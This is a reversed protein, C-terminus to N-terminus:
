YFTERGVTEDLKDMEKTEEERERQDRQRVIRSVWGTEMKFRALINSDNDVDSVALVSENIEPIDEEAEGDAELYEDEILATGGVETMETMIMSEDDSWPLGSLGNMAIEESLNGASNNALYAPKQSVDRERVSVINQALFRADAISLSSKLMASYVAEESIKKTNKYLAAGTNKDFVMAEQIGNPTLFVVGICKGGVKTNVSHIRNETQGNLKSFFERNDIIDKVLGDDNQRTNKNKKASSLSFNEAAEKEQRVADKKAYKSQRQMSDDSEDMALRISIGGSHESDSRNIDRVKPSPANKLTEEMEINITSAIKDLREFERRQREVRSVWGTERRLEALIEASSMERASKKPVTRFEGKENEAAASADYTPNMALYPTQEQTLVGNEALIYADSVAISEALMPLRVEKKLINIHKYLVHGSKKNFVVIEQMANPAIFVVGIRDAGFRTNISYIRHRAYDSLTPLFLTKGNKILSFFERNEIITKTLNLDMQGENEWSAFSSTRKKWVSKTEQVEEVKQDKLFVQRQKQKFNSSGLNERSDYKEAQRENRKVRSVWGTERRIHDLIESNSMMNVNINRSPFLGEGDRVTGADARCTGMTGCSIGVVVGLIIPLLKGAVHKSKQTTQFINGNIKRQMKLM